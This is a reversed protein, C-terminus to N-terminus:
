NIWINTSGFLERLSQIFSKSASVGIKSARIRKISGKESKLHIILRCRGKNKSALDKLNQLLDEEHHNDNFLININKSLEKRISELLFIKKAIMKLSDSDDDRNSPSGKIFICNDEILIDKTKEFVDNFVFIDAKGISGNLEVIAWPRNKKDYRISIKKIIGGILIEDPKKEPINALDINSFEVIDDIYKELPDGSLYFGIIDKERRLEEESTWKEINPLAPASVPSDAGDSSFLSEQLSSAEANIKQGWKIAEDIIEFQQSRHGELNDCAGAQILSELSKRNIFSGEIKTLDFITKFDGNSQRYESIAVSAKSGQNKIASLGYAICNDNLARFNEFSTNVNPPLVELGM